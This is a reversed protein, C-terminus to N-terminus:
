LTCVKSSYQPHVITSAQSWDSSPYSSSSSHVTDSSRRAPSQPLSVTEDYPQPQAVGNAAVTSCSSSRKMDTQQLGPPVLLKTSEYSKRSTSGIKRGSPTHYVYSSSGSQITSTTKNMAISSHSSSRKLSLGLVGKKTGLVQLHDSSSLPRSDFYQLSAAPSSSRKDRLAHRQMTPSRKQIPPLLHGPSTSSAVTSLLTCAGLSRTEYSNRMAMRRLSDRHANVAVTQKYTPDQLVRPHCARTNCASNVLHPHGSM